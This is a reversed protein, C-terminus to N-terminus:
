TEKFDSKVDSELLKYVDIQGPDDKNFDALKEFFSYKLAKSSLGVRQIVANDPQYMLKTIFYRLFSVLLMLLVLPIFVNDRIRPDIYLTQM